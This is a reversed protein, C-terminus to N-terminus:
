SPIIEQGGRPTCGPRRPPHQHKTM